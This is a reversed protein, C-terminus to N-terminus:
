GRLKKLVVGAAIGRLSAGAVRLLGVRLSRSAFLTAGGAALAAALVWPHRRVFEIARDAQDFGTPGADDAPKGDARRLLAMKHAIVQRYPDSM